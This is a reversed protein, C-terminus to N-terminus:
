VMAGKLTFGLLLAAAICALCLVPRKKEGAKPKLCLAKQAGLFACACLILANELFVLWGAKEYDLFAFPVRFFLYDPLRNRM